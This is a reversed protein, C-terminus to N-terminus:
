GEGWVLGDITWFGSTVLSDRQPPAHASRTGMRPNSGAELIRQGNAEPAVAAGRALAGARGDPQSRAGDSLAGCVYTRSDIHMAHPWQQRPHPPSPSPTATVHVLHKDTAGSM